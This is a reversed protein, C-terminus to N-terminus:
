REAEVRPAATSIPTPQEGFALLADLLPTNAILLMALMLALGLWQAAGLEPASARLPRPAPLLLAERLAALYRRCSPCAAVHARCRRARRGRLRHSVLRELTGLDPCDLGRAMPDSADLLAAVKPEPRPEAPRPDSLRELLEQERIFQFPQRRM